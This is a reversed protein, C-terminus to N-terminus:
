APSALCVGLTEVGCKAMEEKLKEIGPKVVAKDDKKNEKDQKQAEKSKGKKDTDTPEANKDSCFAGYYGRRKSMKLLVRAFDALEIRQTAAEARLRHINQGGDPALDKPDLGLLPLCQAIRRLRRAKRDTQRRALRAVRRAAKKPKGVGQNKAAQLPEPFIRVAHYPIAIPEGLENLAYAALGISATGLDLALRYRM